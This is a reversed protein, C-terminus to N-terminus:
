RTVGVKAARLTRDHIVYGPEVVHFVVNPDKGPMPVAFMAEHQEPNFAEDMPEMKSIGFDSLADAVVQQMEKVQGQMKKLVPDQEADEDKVAGAARELNDAVQLISLAFKTMGYKKENELDTTHRKQQQNADQKILAQKEALEKLQDKLEDKKAELEQRENDTLPPLAEAEAALCRRSIVGLLAPRALLFDPRPAPCRAVFSSGKRM